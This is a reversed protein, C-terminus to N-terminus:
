SCTRPQCTGLLVTALGSFCCHPTTGACDKDEHCVRSPGYDDISAACSESKKCTTGTTAAKYAGECCTQGAGCDEPGDCEVKFASGPVCQDRAVCTSPVLSEACCEPTSGRCTLKAKPDCEVSLGDAYIPPDVAPAADPAAGVNSESGSCAALVFAGIACAARASSSGMRM